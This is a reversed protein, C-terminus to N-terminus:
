RSACRAAARARLSPKVGIASKPAGNVLVGAAEVAHALTTTASAQLTAAAAESAGQDAADNARHSPASRRTTHTGARVETDAATAADNEVSSHAPLTHRVTKRPKPAAPRDADNVSEGTQADPEEAAASPEPKVTVREHPQPKVAQLKPRGIPQTGKAGAVARRAVKKTPVASASEPAADAGAATATARVTRTAAKPQPFLLNREAWATLPTLITMIARNLLRPVRAAPLRLEHGPPGPVGVM